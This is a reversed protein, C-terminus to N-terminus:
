IEEDEQKTESEEKPIYRYIINYVLSSFGLVLGLDIWIYSIKLVATFKDTSRLMLQIGFYLIVVAIIMTAIDTIIDVVRRVRPPLATVLFDASICKRERFHRGLCIFSVWVLCSLVLEEIQAYRQGTTWFSIVNFGTFVMMCAFLTGGIANIIKDMIKTFKVIKEGRM